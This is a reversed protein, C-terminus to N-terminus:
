LLGLDYDRFKPLTVGEAGKSLKYVNM